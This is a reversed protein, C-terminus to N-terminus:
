AEGAQALADGLAESEMATLFSAMATIVVLGRELKAIGSIGGAVEVVSQIVQLDEPSVSTLGNVRDVRLAATRDGAQVILLHDTTRLPAPPLSFRMRLDFVPVVDGRLNIIGEVCAPARALPTITVARTAEVMDELWLGFMQADLSFTVLKRM